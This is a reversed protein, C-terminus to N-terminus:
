AKKHLTKLAETAATATHAATAANLISNLQM